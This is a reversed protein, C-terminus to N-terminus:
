HKDKKKNKLSMFGYPKLARNTFRITKIEGKFWSRFDQRVGISIKGGTMPVYNVNGSLEEECNVYDKMSGDKYVLAVHYWGNVPHIIKQSYLTRSSTDSKIFTDLFWSNNNALRLEILIRKDKSEQVHVFRQEKNAQSSSSDPKFIVEITFEKAGSLPNSDVILGDNLGNFLVSKNKNDSIVKPYGIKETAHGNISTVNNIHWTIVKLSDKSQANLNMACIVFSVIILIHNKM